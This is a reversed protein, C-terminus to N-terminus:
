HIPFTSLVVVLGVWIAGGGAIFAVQLARDEFKTSIGGFFLVTAFLVTLLVYNDSNQNATKAEETKQDALAMLGRSEDLEPRSYSDMVFPSTPAGPNHLPDTALWAENAVKLEPRFRNATFNAVDTHGEGYATAYDLWMGVDLMVLQGDRDSLGVAQTRAANAESFRITQVGSWRSSQYACWASGVTALAMIGASIIELWRLPIGALLRSV